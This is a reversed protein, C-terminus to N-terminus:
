EASFKVEFAAGSASVMTNRVYKAGAATDDLDGDFYVRMTVTVYSVSVDEEDAVLLPITMQDSIKVRLTKKTGTADATGDTVVKLFNTESNAYYTVPTTVADDNTVGVHFDITVANHITSVLAAPVTIYAYLTKDTLATGGTTAIYVTYDYYYGTGAEVLENGALMAGTGADIDGEEKPRVLGSASTIDPDDNHTAPKLNSTAAGLEVTQNAAKLADLTAVKSIILSSSATATVEMGTATATTGMSFWAFSATSMMIASVLLMAFAPLLKRMKKM